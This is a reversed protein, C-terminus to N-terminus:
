RRRRVGRLAAAGLVVAAAPTPVVTFATVTGTVAGGAPGADPMLTFISAGWQNLDLDSPLADTSFPSGDIATLIIQANFDGQLDVTIHYGDAANNIVEINGGTSTEFATGAVVTHASIANLYDGRADSPDSDLAATDFSFEIAFDDGTDADLWPGSAFSNSTITGDFRFTIIDGFAPSSIACAALLLATARVYM